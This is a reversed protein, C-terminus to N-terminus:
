NLTVSKICVIHFLKETLQCAVEDCGIGIAKVLLRDLNCVLSMCILM